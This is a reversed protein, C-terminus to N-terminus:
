AFPNRITLGRIVHGDRMDESYLIRCEAELAAALILSNFVSYGHREAIRLAEKHTNLTIPIPSPCLTHIAELAECIETWTMGLKRRAVSALENLSQVSTVGGQGLL